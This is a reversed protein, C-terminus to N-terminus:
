TLLHRYTRRRRPLVLGGIVTAFQHHVYGDFDVRDAFFWHKLAWGHALMLLDYAVLTPNHGVLLGADVAAALESALPEISAVEMAKITAIGQDGLTKSERYTLVAAHRNAEIVECYARFGAALREVPDDGAAAIAAPITRGYQELVNVIVGLLLDEKGDFYRYILGVSVGAEDAVAQMSVGHSGQREMLRAAARLIQETRLETRVQRAGEAADTATDILITQHM